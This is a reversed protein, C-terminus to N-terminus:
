RWIEMNSYDIDFELVFSAVFGLSVLYEISLTSFYFTPSTESPAEISREVVVKEEEILDEKQAKAMIKKKGGTKTRM